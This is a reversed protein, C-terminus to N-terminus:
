LVSIFPWCSPAWRPRLSNTFARPPVPFPAWLWDRRAALPAAGVFRRLVWWPTCDIRCGPRQHAVFILSLRVRFAEKPDDFRLKLPQHAEEPSALAPPPVPEGGMVEAVVAAAEEMRAPGRVAAEVVAPEAAVRAAAATSIARSFGLAAAAGSPRLCPALGAAAQPTLLAQLM